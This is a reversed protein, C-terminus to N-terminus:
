EIDKIKLPATGCENFGKSTDFHLHSSPQYNKDLGAAAYESPKLFGTVRVETRRNAQHEEESCKVGNKCKNILKSEGYGKAVIRIKSIGHRIIYAVASDARKQSLKQNYGDNGRSDCHSGLEIKITPYENLIDVLNDLIKAADERIAASNYDYLLNKVEFTTNLGIKVPQLPVDTSAYIPNKIAPTEIQYCDPFHNEKEAKVVYKSKPQLRRCFKGDKGSVATDVTGTQPDYFFITAGDVPKKTKKYLVSACFDIYLIKKLYIVTDVAKGSRFNFLSKSLLISDPYHGKAKAPVVFDTGTHSVPSLVTQFLGQSDTLTDKLVFKDTSKYFKVSAAALVTSDFASKVIIRVPVPKKPDYIFAYIDDDGVGRKRNSSFFGRKGEDKAIFGFDDYSTNVPYGLNVVPKTFDSSIDSSFVDLGGLGAHGNSAFYLVNEKSVFPFMENGETNINNGLSKPESFNGDAQLESVYIDTGGLGGPMDSVFYLKKGDPSLAPHGISYKDSNINITKIRTPLSDKFVSRYIKLSVIKDDTKKTKGRYYNSRTFYMTDGAPSFTMPGEHFKSNIKVSIKKVMRNAKADMGTSDIYNLSYTGLTKTDNSTLYTDDDNYYRKGRRKSMELSDEKTIEYPKLKSSDAVYIDIFASNDYAYVRNFADPSIIRNSCFAIGDRYFAPSFDSLSTNLGLKYIKYASSDAFFPKVNKYAQSFKVARADSPNKYAYTTYNESAKEYLQLAALVEAFKLYCDAPVDSINTTLFEYANAAKEYDKLKYYCDALNILSQRHKADYKLADLYKAAADLYRMAAYESDADRLVLELRNKQSYSFHFILSFAIFILLQFKKMYIFEAGM